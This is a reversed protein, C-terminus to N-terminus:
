LSTRLLMILITPVVQTHEYWRGCLSEKINESQSSVHSERIGHLWLFSNASNKWEIFSQSRLLWAGTSPEHKKRAAEHNTSPNTSSLWRLLKDKTDDAVM